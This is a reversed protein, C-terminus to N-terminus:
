VRISSVIFPICSLSHFTVEEKALAAAVVAAKEAKIAAKNRELNAAIDAAKKAALAVQKNKEEIIREQTL